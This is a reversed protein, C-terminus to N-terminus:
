SHYSKTRLIKHSQVYMYFTSKERFAVYMKRTLNFRSWFQNPNANLGPQANFVSVWDLNPKSLGLGPGVGGLAM